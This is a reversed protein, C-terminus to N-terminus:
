AGYIVACFLLLGFSFGTLEGALDQQEDTAANINNLADVLLDEKQQGSKEEEFVVKRSTLENDLDNGSLPEVLARDVEDSGVGLNLNGTTGSSAV